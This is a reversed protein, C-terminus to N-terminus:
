MGQLGEEGITPLYKNPVGPDGTGIVIRLAFSACLAAIVTGALISAFGAVLAKSEDFAFWTIVVDMVMQPVLPGMAFGLFNNIGQSLGTGFRRVKEDEVSGNCVIQILGTTAGLGGCIMFVGVWTPLLFVFGADAGKTLQLVLGTLMILAGLASYATTKQLFVLTRRADTSGETSSSLFIGSAGGVGTVVLFSVVSLQKDMSWLDIFGRIWIFALGAGVYNCSAFALATRCFLPNGWLMGLQESLPKDDIVTLPAMFSGSRIRPRDGALFDSADSVSRLREHAAEPVGDDNRIELSSPNTLLLAILLAFLVCAEIQFSMSYSFGHATTFGAILTGIGSGVGASVSGCLNMWLPMTSEDANRVIWLPAWVWQLGETLGIFMKATYMAYCNEQSAFIMVNSANITLGICLLTKAPIKQLMYGWFAASITMGIKDMAGLLGIGTQSWAGDLQITDVTAATAGGNFAMFMPVGMCFLWFLHVAKLEVM